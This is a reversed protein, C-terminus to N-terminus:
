GALYTDSCMSPIPRKELPLSLHKLIDQYCGQISARSFDPIVVRGPWHECSLGLWKRYVVLSLEMIEINEDSVPLSFSCGLFEMAFTIHAQSRYQPISASALSRVIGAIIRPRIEPICISNVIDTAICDLRLSLIKCPNDALLQLDILHKLMM